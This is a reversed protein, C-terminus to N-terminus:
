LYETLSLRSLRATLTYFADLRTELDQLRAATEYPDAEILSLRALGLATKEAGNRAKANAVQEQVVGVRSALEARADAGTTLGQGAALALDRRASHDGSLLGRDLLAMTALGALTDRLGQDLATVTLGASEGPAVAVAARAPGGAYDATYGTPDTFWDRIANQAAAASTAAAVAGQLATLLTEADPLPDGAETGGFLSRGAISANLASVVSQFGQAASATLASLQTASSLAGSGLLRSAVDDATASIHTLASQVSEAMLDLDATTAAFGDIRALSHDIGALATFQGKLHAGPDSVIGTTMETTARGLEARLSASQRILAPTLFPASTLVTM